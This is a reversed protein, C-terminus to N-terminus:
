YNEIFRVTQNENDQYRLGFWHTEILNLYKFIEDLLDQGTTKGQFLKDLTLCLYKEDFILLFKIFSWSHTKFCFSSLLLFM